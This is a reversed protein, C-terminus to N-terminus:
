TLPLLKIGTYIIGVLIFLFLPFTIYNPIYSFASLYSILMNQFNTNIVSSDEINDILPSILSNYNYEGEPVFPFVLVPVVLGIIVLIILSIYLPAWEGM